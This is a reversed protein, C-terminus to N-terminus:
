DNIIVKYTYNREPTTVNIIYVGEALKNRNLEYQRGEVKDSYVLTGLASYVNLDGKVTNKFHLTTSNKFPNPYVDSFDEFSFSNLGTVACTFTSMGDLKGYGWQNDPLATGTFGDKYTCNIIKQKIQQNTSSPFAQMYLAALGAVVPSAASTGGGGVHLSGAAVSQPNSSIQGPALALVIAAFIGNGSAAVDPKTLNVRTPGISSSPVIEGTTEPTTILTNTVDFYTKLNVYNAVTVIESSCQFGSVISQITDPKTYKTIKPYVSAPPLNNNVFDFNWADFKGTGTSEIRWLYANTDPTIQIFLEYVGYPNVSAFSQVKGIRNGGFMISDTKPTLGYNYNKFGINGLDTYTTDRNVGISYKVNKINATDAYMWYYLNGSNTTIWTFNTDTPIVVNQTHFKVEGANGAAAILARGPINSILGEIIKAEADTADHSGYYDGVSANIVFPKGLSTAKNVIYQVADPIIPGPKFFDLAVVILRSNSAIGEHTGNALGNGAAVGSVHTGHGFWGTPDHTCLNANIQAATWEQGYNFPMPSVTPTNVTQDWIYDIRTNGLNDKFDPHNFDIGTDIIGVLVGTGDYAMPLPSLGQKVPKIRNRILMTDNLPRKRPEIYEIYKVIKLNILASIDNVDLNVCAVNGAHYKVKIGLSQQQEILKDIDGEVLVDFAQGGLLNNYM